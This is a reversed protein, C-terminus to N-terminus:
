KSKKNNRRANKKENKQIRMYNRLDYWDPILYMDKRWLYIEIQLRQIEEFIDVNKIILKEITESHCLLGDINHKSKRISLFEKIIFSLLPTAISIISLVNIITFDFLIFHVVIFGIIILLIILNQVFFGHLLDNSWTINEKQCYFIAKNKDIKSHNEYWNKARDFQKNGYKNVYNNIYNDNVTEDYLPLEFIYCDFKQQILAAIRKISDIKENILPTLVLICLSVFSLIPLINKNDKPIFILSINILLPVFVMLFILLRNWKKACSYTYHQSTVLKLMEAENQRKYINNMSQSGKVL